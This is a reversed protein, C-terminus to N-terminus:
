LDTLVFKQIRQVISNVLPESYYDSVLINKDISNKFWTMQRKALNRTKQKTLQTASALDIKNEIYQIFEVLGIAKAAPLRRDVGLEAFNRAEDLAGQAIM